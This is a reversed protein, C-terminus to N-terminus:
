QRHMAIKKMRYSQSFVFPWIKFPLYHELGGIIRCMFAGEGVWITDQHRSLIRGVLHKAFEVPDM